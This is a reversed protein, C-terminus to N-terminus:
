SAFTRISRVVRSATKPGMKMFGNMLATKPSSKHQKQAWKRIHKDIPLYLQLKQASVPVNGSTLLRFVLLM